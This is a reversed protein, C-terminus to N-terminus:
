GLLREIESESLLEPSKAFIRIEAALSNGMVEARVFLRKSVSTAREVAQIFKRSSAPSLKGVKLDNFMVHIEPKEPNRQNNVLELLVTQSFAGRLKEVVIKVNENNKSEDSVQLTNGIPWIIASKPIELYNVPPLASNPDDVDLSVSGYADDSDSVWVRCSAFVRQNVSAAYSLLPHFSPAETRPIYGVKRGNIEVRVANSDFKNEPERIIEALTLHEGTQRKVAKSIADFYHSEGALGQSYSGSSEIVFYDGEPPMPTDTDLSESTSERGFRGRSKRNMYVRVFILILIIFSLIGSVASSGGSLLSPLVLLALARVWWKDILKKKM